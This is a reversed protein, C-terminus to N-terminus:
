VLNLMDGLFQLSRKQIAWKMYKQMVEKAQVNRVSVNTMHRILCVKLQMPVAYIRLVMYMIVVVKRQLTSIFM